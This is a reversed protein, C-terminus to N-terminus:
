CKEKQVPNSTAPCIHLGFLYQLSANSGFLKEQSWDSDAYPFLSVQFVYMSVKGVKGRRRFDFLTLGAVGLRKDSGSM